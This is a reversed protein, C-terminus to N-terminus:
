MSYKSGNKYIFEDLMNTKSPFQIEDQISDFIFLYLIETLIMIYYIRQRRVYITFLCVSYNLKGIM